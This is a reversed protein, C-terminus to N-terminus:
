HITVPTEGTKAEVRSLREIIRAENDRTALDHTDIQSMRTNLIAVMAELKALRELEIRERETHDKILGTNIEVHTQVSGLQIAGTALSVIIAAMVALAPWSIQVVMKNM